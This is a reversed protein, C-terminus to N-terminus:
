RRIQCNRATSSGENELTRGASFEVVERGLGHNSWVSGTLVSLKQENEMHWSRSCPGGGRDSGCGTTSLASADSDIKM